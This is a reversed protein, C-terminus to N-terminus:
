HLGVALSRTAGRHYDMILALAAPLYCAESVGMLGRMALLQPFTKAYSTLLTVASWVMMSIIIVRSRSFRDAMFGAFPSLFAYVWLFASTLMIRDLYNFGVVFWLLGVVLWARSLPPTSADTM